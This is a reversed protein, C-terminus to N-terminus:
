GRRRQLARQLAPPTLAWYARRAVSPGRTVGSGIIASQKGSERLDEPVTGDQVVRRVTDSHTSLVGINTGRARVAAVTSALSRLSNSNYQNINRGDFNSSSFDVGALNVSKAGAWSAIQMASFLVGAMDFVPSSDLECDVKDVRADFLYESLQFRALPADNQSITHASISMERTARRGIRAYLRLVVSDPLERYDVNSPPEDQMVHVDVRLGALAASNLAMVVYQDLKDPRLDKLSAGAGVILVDRGGLLARVRHADQASFAATTSTADASLKRISPVPGPASSHLLSEIVNDFVRLYQRSFNEVNFRTETMAKSLEGARELDWSLIRDVDRPDIAAPDIYEVNGNNDFELNGGVPSLILPKALSMAELTGFDFIATRHLMVFVDAWDVAALLTSHPVRKDSLISEFNWSERQANLAEYLGAKHASGLAIWLVKKQSRAAILSLLRPVRDLGKNSSYDGVSIYVDYQSRVQPNLLDECHHDVLLSEISKIEIRQPIIANYLPENGLRVERKQVARSTEFFASMAGNSPFYVARAKTFALREFHRFIARETDNIVEGFSERENEFSGQGHWILVFPLNAMAAAAATGIDHSVLVQATRTNVLPSIPLRKGIQQEVFFHARLLNRAMTGLDHADAWQLWRTPLKSGSPEFYYRCKFGRYEDGLNARLNFLVGNPGGTATGTPEPRFAINIFEINDASRPGLVGPDSGFSQLYDPILSQPEFTM